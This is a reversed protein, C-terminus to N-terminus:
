FGIGIAYEANVLRDCGASCRDMEKGAVVDARPAVEGGARKDCAQIDVPRVRLVTLELMWVGDSPGFCVAALNEMREIRDREAIRAEMLTARYGRLGPEFGPPVENPPGHLMSGRLVLVM